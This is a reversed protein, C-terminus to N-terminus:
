ETACFMEVHNIGEHIPMRLAQLWIGPHTEIFRDIEADTWGTEVLVTRLIAHYEM